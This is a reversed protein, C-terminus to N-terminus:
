QSKALVKIKSLLSESEESAVFLRISSRGRWVLVPFEMGKLRLIAIASGNAMDEFPKPCEAMSLQRDQLLKM